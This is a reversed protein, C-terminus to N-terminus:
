RARGSRSQNWGACNALGAESRMQRLYRSQCLSEHPCPALPHEMRSPLVRRCRSRRRGQKRGRWQRGGRWMGFSGGQKQQAAPLKSGDSKYFGYEPEDTRFFLGDKSNFRSYVLPRDTGDPLGGKILVYGLTQKGDGWPDVPVRPLESQLEELSGPWRGHKHQYVHAALVMATMGRESQARRITELIRDMSPKLIPNTASGAPESKMAQALEAQADPHDLLRAIWDTATSLPLDDRDGADETITAGSVMVMLRYTDLAEIGEGVLLRVLNEGPQNKLLEALHLLDEASEFAAPQDKLILSQYTAADGIENALNRCENLYSLKQRNFPPWVAHTLSAAQHAMERVQGHAEYDQKEMRVWEDSMPPSGRYTLNSAAPSMINRSDDGRLMNAAQLYIGAADEAPQSTQGRASNAAIGVAVMLAWTGRMSIEQWFVYQRMM